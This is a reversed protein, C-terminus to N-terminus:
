RCIKCLLYSIPITKMQSIPFNERLTQSKPADQATKRFITKKEVTLVVKTKAIDLHHVEHQKRKHTLDARAEPLIDQQHDDRVEQDPITVTLMHFDDPVEQDNDHHNQDHDHNQFETIPDTHLHDDPDHILIDDESHHNPDFDHFHDPDPDHFDNVPDLDHDIDHDILSHDHVPDTFDARPNRFDNYDHHQDALIPDPDPDPENILIWRHKHTWLQVTNTKDM